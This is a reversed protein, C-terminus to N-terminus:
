AMISVTDPEGMITAKAYRAAATGYASKAASVDQASGDAPASAALALGAADRAAKEPDTTRTTSVVVHGGLAYLQGDPGVELDYVPLGSALGGASFFHQREHARVSADIQSLEASAGSVDDEAFTQAFELPSLAVRPSLFDGMKAQRVPTRALPQEALNDNASRSVAADRMGTLERASVKRSTSVQGGSVYLQGDPGLSYTFDTVATSSGGAAAAKRAIESRISADQAQFLRTAQSTSAALFQNVSLSRAIDM